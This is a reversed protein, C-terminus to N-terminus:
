PVRPELHNKRRTAVRRLLAMISSGLTCVEFMMLRALRGRHGGGSLAYACLRPRFLPHYFTDSRGSKLAPVWGPFGSPEVMEAVFNLGCWVSASLSRWFRPNSEFLFVEGSGDEIRADINMVGTYASEKALRRASAELAENALFKIPAGEDQPAQRQQVAIAKVEGDISLINVGIDVGRIYRQAVLPAYCYNANDLVLRRWAEEDRIVHVGKSGQQNLPKVIFPVGLECAAAPFDLDTKSKAFRTAPVNLGHEMCFRYFAWKNDFRELTATDPTPLLRAKLRSRVRNCIRTGDCDAAIIILETHMASLRDVADVFRDDDTGDFDIELYASHLNSHRLFQTHRSCVAICRADTFTRVALLVQVVLARASGVVVFSRQIAM